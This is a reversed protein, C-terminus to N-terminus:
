PTSSSNTACHRVPTTLAREVSWGVYIRRKLTDTQIGLEEAWAAICQARGDFTLLRNNRRNRAQERQTAWVCNGPEYHGDNDKRDISHQRSPKDGMDDYFAEFSNRWQECVTIGRGGYLSYTSCNRNYCRWIIHTWSKYETTHSKGHTQSRAITIEKQLCGCSRSTGNALSGGSVVSKRGCDCRCLWLMNTGNRKRESRELVTWRCFILGTLDKVRSPRAISHTDAM